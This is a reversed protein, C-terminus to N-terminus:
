KKFRTYNEYIKGVVTKVDQRASNLVGRSDITKRSFLEFPNKRIGSLDSRGYISHSAFAGQSSSFVRVGLRKELEEERYTHVAALDVSIKNKHLVDCLPLLSGGTVLTDTVLLASGIMGVRLEGIIEKTIQGSIDDSFDERLMNIFHEELKVTKDAKDINHGQGSGALFYLKPSDFGNENYIKKLVGWIILAPLRGSADDGIIWSYEGKEIEEKMERLIEAIPSALEGIEENHFPSKEELEETAIKEM